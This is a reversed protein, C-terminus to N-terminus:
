GGIKENCGEPHYAETHMGLLDREERIRKDDDPNYHAHLHTAGKRKFCEAKHHYDGSRKSLDGQGIYVAEHRLADVSRVYIYNGQQEAFVHSLDYVGHQYKTGSAGSWVMKGLEM